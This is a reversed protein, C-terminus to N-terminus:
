PSHKKCMFTQLSASALDTRFPAVASCLLLAPKLAYETSCLQTAPRVLLQKGNKSDGTCSDMSEMSLKHAVSCVGDPGVVLWPVKCSNAREVNNVTDDHVTTAQAVRQQMAAALDQVSTHQTRCVASACAVPPLNAPAEFKERAFKNGVLCVREAARQQMARILSLILGLFVFVGAVTLAIVAVIRTNGDFPGLDSNNM